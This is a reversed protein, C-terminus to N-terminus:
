WTLSSGADVTAAADTTLAAATPPTISAPPTNPASAAVAKKKLETLLEGLEDAFPKLKNGDELRSYAEMMRLQCAIRENAEATDGDIDSRILAIAYDLERVTPGTRHSDIRPRKMRYASLSAFSDDSSASSSTDDYPIPTYKKGRSKGGRKM